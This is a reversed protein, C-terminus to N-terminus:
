GAEARKIKMAWAVAKGEDFIAGHEQLYDIHGEINEVIVTYDSEIVADYAYQGALQEPTFEIGEIGEYTGGDNIADIVQDLTTANKVTNSLYIDM